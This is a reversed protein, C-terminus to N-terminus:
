FRIGMIVLVINIFFIKPKVGGGGGGGWGYVVGSIRNSGYHPSTPPHPTKLLTPEKEAQFVRGGGVRVWGM